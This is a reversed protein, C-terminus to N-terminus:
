TWFVVGHQEKRLRWTVCDVDSALTGPNNKLLEIAWERAQWAERFTPSDPLPTFESHRLIGVTWM